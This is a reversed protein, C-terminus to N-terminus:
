AADRAGISSAAECYVSSYAEVMRDLTFCAQYCSRARNSMARRELPAMGAVNDLVDALAAADGSRATFGTVGQDILERLEPIDSSVVISGDAFAELISLPQGESSSPLLLVDASAAIRRAAASYGHVHTVAALGEGDIADKLERADGDGVFVVFLKSKARAAADVVLRQRKRAGITGIVAVVLAGDRRRDNMTQMLSVARADPRTQPEAGGDVGYPVVTINSPQVGLSALTDLSTRSPVIVRDVLNLLSADTAAHEDSKSTGWGHMTQVIRMPTRRFGSYILAVLSPIAAHAHIVDPADVVGYAEDIARVVALNAAHRREFTSDVLRVPIGNAALRDLYAQYNGYGEPARDSAFVRVDHGALRQEIALDTIVRGAGGQLFTTLHLIKM